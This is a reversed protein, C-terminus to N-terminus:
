MSPNTCCPVSVSTVQERVPWPASEPWAAVYYVLSIRVGQCPTFSNRKRSDFLIWRRLTPFVSEKMRVWKKGGRGRVVKPPNSDSRVMGNLPDEAWFEGGSYEGLTYLTKLM